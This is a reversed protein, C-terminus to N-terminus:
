SLKKTFWLVLDDDLPYTNDPITHDYNYTVGKGDPIYGRKVYLRQASGYGGDEGAYLGVGIGIIQSKTLAEKEACDLLLSGIGMKRFSPLVNLDMIEPINQEKFPLYGSQWKLTVYGAFEDQVQAVWVLREGAEQEKLYGEFLSASKDWGIQHFSSVIAKIDEETLSRIFVDSIRNAHLNDLNKLMYVMNWEYGQPKLNFLPAFGLSKYFHYTKLYNEDAEEPSLTEVSITKAGRNKAQKFAEDSLIKGIGTRHYSRLIGLWYINSNEPYPFDISILGVYEDGICAALNIRSRVGVAYHENVEPLGFYEPLDATIKRCLLEALDPTITEIKIM